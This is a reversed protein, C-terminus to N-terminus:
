LIIQGDTKDAKAAAPQNPIRHGIKILQRNPILLLLYEHEDDKVM